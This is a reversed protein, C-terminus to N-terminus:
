HITSSKYITCVWVVDFLLSMVKDVFTWVALAMTKETDHVSTLTPGYLLSLVSSNIREFQPALSSEQSNGPCCLSWVMWDQSFDVGFAWQIFQHQFQLELVKPVQHSSGIWQFLGQHQSLNPAPPSTSPLPHSPPTADSICHIHVQAFEPLHHPVPLGLTSCDM